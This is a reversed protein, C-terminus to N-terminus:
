GIRVVGPHGIVEALTDAAAALVDPEHGTVTLRVGPGSALRFAAGPRLVYGAHQMAAVVRAEDDVPVWVNFGSRGTATVGAAALRDIVLGRRRDLEAAASALRGRHGPDALLGAVTRQLLHSVWGTGLAQRGAVRAITTADGAVAAVRLDPGLVKAMSRITAWRAVGGTVSRFPVGAVAGAHDDVVVLTRPRGTLVARLEAAREADVAAGTPNQARPTVIVAAAGGTGWGGPSSGPHGLVADLGDPRMGREDVAVEVPTLGMAALLQLLPGYGPDETAVRDGPRLWAGLVREVGDLAGGVVALHTPDIGDGALDATLLEALRPDIQPDGYGVAPGAAAATVAATPDPVHRPDPNGRSLDILGAIDAPAGPLTLAPRDAVFTGRRGRGVLSGRAGLSRYAAGVTAPALGLRLALERVPPLRDGPSLGGDSIRREVAEVVEAATRPGPVLKDGDTM